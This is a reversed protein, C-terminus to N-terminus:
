AEVDEANLGSRSLAGRLSAKAYNLRSKITGVPCGCVEAVENLSLGQYFVLELALRHELSLAELGSRLLRRQESAAAQAEPLPDGAPPDQEEADLSEVQRGRLQNLAKHHVIGLLWAIVRSEGRFKGAGQWVTVLCEQVAEEAAAPDGTVRLAYAYMRQGYADLLIRLADEDGAAVRRILAPDSDKVTVSQKLLAVM